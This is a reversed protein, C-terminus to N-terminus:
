IQAEQKCLEVRNGGFGWYLLQVIDTNPM